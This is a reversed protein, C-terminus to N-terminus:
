NTLFHLKTDKAVADTKSWISRKCQMSTELIIIIIYGYIDRFHPKDGEVLLTTFFIPYKRDYKMPDSRCIGCSCPSKASLTSKLFHM